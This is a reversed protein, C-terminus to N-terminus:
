RTSAGPRAGSAPRPASTSAASRRTTPPRRPRCRTPAVVIVDVLVGPVHVAFPKLTGAKALRKVQAIVIGGNNRVALAQDLPGLYAGEHEYPTAASTPPPPASSRSM